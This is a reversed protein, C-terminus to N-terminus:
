APPPTAAIKAREKDIWHIFATFAGGVGVTALKATWTKFDTALAPGGALGIVKQVNASGLFDFLQTLAANV